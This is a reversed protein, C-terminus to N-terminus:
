ASVPSLPPWNADPSQLVGVLIHEPRIDNAGLERAEEQALVVAIRAHRSFREFM